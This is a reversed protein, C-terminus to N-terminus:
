IEWPLKRKQQSSEAEKRAEYKEEAKEGGEPSLLSQRRRAFLPEREQLLSVNERLVPARAQGEAMPTLYQRENEKEKREIEYRIAATEAEPAKEKVPQIEEPAGPVEHRMELTPSIVGGPRTQFEEESPAVQEELSLEKEDQESIIKIKPKLERIKIKPKPM